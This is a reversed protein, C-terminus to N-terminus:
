IELVGKEGDGEVAEGLEKEGESPLVRLSTNALGLM